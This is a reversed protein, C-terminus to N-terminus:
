LNIKALRIDIESNGWIVTYVAGDHVRIDGIVEGDVSLSQLVAGNDRSIQWVTKSSDGLIVSDGHLDYYACGNKLFISYCEDGSRADICNFFGNAGATGYLVRDGVFNLTTYLWPTTRRAFREEGSEMDLCILETENKVWYVLDEFCYLRCDLQPGEFKRKHRWLVKSQKVDYKLIGANTWNTYGLLLNGDTTRIPHYLKAIRPIQIQNLITGDAPDIFLLADRGFCTISQEFVTMEGGCYSKSSRLSLEWLLDFSDLSFCKLITGDCLLLRNEYVLHSQIKAMYGSRLIPVVSKGDYLWFEGTYIILKDQYDIFYFKCSIDHGYPLDFEKSGGDSLNIEYMKLRLCNNEAKVYYMCIYYLKDANEKIYIPAEFYGDESNENTPLNVEWAIEM